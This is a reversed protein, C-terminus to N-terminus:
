YLGNLLRHFYAVCAPEDGMDCTVDWSGKDEAEVALGRMAALFGNAAKM